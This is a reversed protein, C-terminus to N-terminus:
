QMFSYGFYYIGVLATSATLGLAMYSGMYLANGALSSGILWVSPAMLKRWREPHFPRTWPTRRTFAYAAVSELIAVALFPVVFSLAGLGALAGVIMGGYRVVGSLIDITSVAGFRMDMRLRALSVFALSNLPISAAIIWLMPVLRPERYIGAIWPAVVALLVGALTNFVLGLWFAPGELEEYDATGRQIILTQMGGDRLAMIFGAISNAIAFLGFDRDVLVAGLVVQSLFSLGRTAATAGSLAAAGRGVSQAMPGPPLSSAEPPLGAVTEDM